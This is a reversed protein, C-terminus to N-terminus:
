CTIPKPWQFLSRFFPHPKFLIQLHNNSCIFIKQKFISQCVEFGDEGTYGCRTLQCGQIGFVSTNTTQMFYLKSLDTDVEGELLKAAEPGLFLNFIKKFLLFFGQVAILGFQPSIEKIKVDKGKSRWNEANM